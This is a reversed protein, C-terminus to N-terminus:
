NASRILRKQHDAAFLDIAKKFLSDEVKVVSIIEFTMVTQLQDPQLDAAPLTMKKLTHQMDGDTQIMKFVLIVATGPILEILGDAPQYM